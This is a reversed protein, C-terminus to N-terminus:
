CDDICLFSQSLLPHQAYISVFELVQSLKDESYVIDAMAMLACYRWAWHSHLLLPKAKEMLHTM